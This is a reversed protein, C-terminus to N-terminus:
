RARILPARNPHRHRDAPLSSPFADTPPCPSSGTPDSSQLQHGSTHPCNWICNNHWSCPRTGKQATPIPSSPFLPTSHTHHRTLHKNTSASPHHPLSQISLNACLRSRNPSPSSQQHPIDSSSLTYASKSACSCPFTCFLSTPSSPFTAHCPMADVVHDPRSESSTLTRLFVLYVTLNFGDGQVDRSFFFFRILVM